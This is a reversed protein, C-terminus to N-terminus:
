PMPFTWTTNYELISPDCRALITVGLLGVGIVAVPTVFAVLGAAAGYLGAAAGVDAVANGFLWGGYIAIGGSLFGAFCAAISNAGSPDINNTPNDGAYSYTNPGPKSDGQTWRAVSPDYYRMGFKYLGTSDLYGSAFLWPNAITGTSTKIKGYPEYSYTNVVAGTGDSLGVVSGLGDFLYYYPTYNPIGPVREEVLQGKNDRTYATNGSVGTSAAGCGLVNYTFNTSGATVRETQTAGTYTMNLAPQGPATISTTQNKVNYTFNLGASNGMENGNGDFSYTTSGSSTLENAANFAQSVGNNNRLNGNADYDYSYSGGAGSAGVLRNLSNYSYTSTANNVDTVSWRLDSDDTKNTSCPNLRNYCYSFRNLTSAGKTAKIETLRESSDYTMNEIVGNPYATSTRRYGANYTFNTIGGNPETLSSVGNVQDYAYTVTGGSDQLSVLNGVPDYGYSITTTDPLVKRTQRNLNDYTFNTIGTNDQLRTVNGDNDYTYVIMSSDAYTIQTVRDLVDYAYQNLQGKGDRRSTMRSLGDYGMIATGLPAPYTITILNGNADYGYSTVNGNADTNSAVTGNTNYSARWAAQSSDNTVSTLNNSTSYSYTYGNGQADKFTDPAYPHPGTPTYTWTSNAGTPAAANTLNNSTPDYTFATPNTPYAGDAYNLVNSNSNYTTTAAQNKADLVKIVRGQNDYCHTTAHSNADTVVTNGVIGSVVPGYNNCSGTGPNYAFSTTPGTGQVPDTVYTISRVRYTYGFRISTDYAIKTVNGNPDTIQTLDSNADYDYKTVGLGPDTYTRLNKNTDYTYQFTRGAPDTMASILNTDVGSNYQFTTVRGQTDAISALANTGNYAFSLTNSNRDVNSVLWGNSNFNYKESSRDYTITYTGGSYSLAADLGPSRQYTGDANKIFHVAFGSPAYYTAGDGDNPNLVVDAGTSMQWCIGLDWRYPCLNNFYRDISLNLGTGRIRLDQAHVMLNGNAVNVHLHMRDDLNHSELKYFAREGLSPYHRVKLYPWNASDTAFSSDYQVWNNLTEDAEKLLLGYNATQGNIWGQALNTLYWTYFGVQPGVNTTWAAPSAYDGGPTNWSNSGDYLNWNVEPLGSGPTSGGVWRQTLQHMAVAQASSSSAWNLRLGLEASLVTSNSPISGLDFQVLTRRVYNAGDWGTLVSDLGCGSYDRGNVGLIYCDQNPNQTTGYFTVTPDVVVPWKRGPNALWTPDATMTLDAGGARPTLKLDVAHSVGSPLHSSDAMYPHPIAFIVTGRSDIVDVGGSANSRVQLGPSMRLQYTYSSITPAGQLTLTEKVEDNAATFAVDTKPFANAFTETQGSVVGKGQAGTMSFELWAGGITVRVAGTGIDDPLDVSFRNARNAHAFGPKTSAVLTSDIPQWRGNSDQYNVSGPFVLTEYSNGDSYTRSTRTRQSVAERSPDLTHVRSATPATGVPTRNITGPVFSRAAAANTAVSPRAAGAPVASLFTTSTLLALIISLRRTM